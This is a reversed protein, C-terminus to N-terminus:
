GQGLRPGYVQQYNSYSTGASKGRPDKAWMIWDYLAAGAKEGSPDSQWENELQNENMAQYNKGGSQELQTVQSPTLQPIGQKSSVNAGFQQTVSRLRSAEDATYIGLKEKQNIEDLASAPNIKGGQLGSFLGDVEKPLDKNAKADALSTGPDIGYSQLGDPAKGTAKWVDMLQSFKGNTLSNNASMRSTTANMASTNANQQSISLQGMDVAKKLAYDMGWRKADEDFTQQYQKDKIQDRYKTYDFQQGQMTRQGQPFVWDGNDDKRAGISAGLRNNEAALAAQQEPTANFWATSNQQMRNIVSATNPDQFSGTLQGENIQYNRDDNKVSQGFKRNADNQSFQQGQMAMTPAGNWNGTLQAEQIAYGRQRDIEEQLLQRIKDPAQQQLTAIKDATQQALLANRGWIDQNRASVDRQLNGQSQAYGRGINGLQYDLGGSYFGGRRNQLTQADQNDMVQQEQLKKLQEDLYNNNQTVALQNAQVTQANGQNFAQIQKAIEDNVNATIRSTIGDIDVPPGSYAPQLTRNIGGNGGGAGTVGGVVTGAVGGTSSAGGGGNSGGASQGMGGSSPANGYVLDNFPVSAAARLQDAWTHAANAGVTDGSGSRQGYVDKARQIEQRADDPHQKYYALQQEISMADVTPSKVYSPSATGSPLSTPNQVQPPAPYSTPNGNMDLGMGTLVKGANQNGNKSLSLAFIQQPTMQTTDYVNGSNDAWTNIENRSPDAARVSDYISQYSKNVDAGPTVNGIVSAAGSYSTAPATYSVPSQSTYNPSSATYASTPGGTMSQTTPKSPTVIGSGPTPSTTKLPAVPGDSSVSPTSNAPRPSPVATAVSVPGSPVSPNFYSQEVTNGELQKLATQAASGGMQVQKSLREYDSRSIVGM